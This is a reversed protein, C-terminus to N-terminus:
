ASISVSGASPTRLGDVPFKPPPLMTTPVNMAYIVSSHDRGFWRGIRPYSPTPALARVRRMAEWRAYAVPRRRCPSLIEAVRVGREGAVDRIIKAIRPPLSV